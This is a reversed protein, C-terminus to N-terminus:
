MAALEQIEMDSLKYIGREVSIVVIEVDYNTQKPNVREYEECLVRRIASLQTAPAVVQAQNGLSLAGLRRILAARLDKAGVLTVPSADITQYAGSPDTQVMTVHPYRSVHGAVVLTSGFPRIGGGFASSQCTRCVSEVIQPTKMPQGYSRRFQLNEDTLKSFLALSDALVGSLAVVTNSDEMVILREMFKGQRIAVLCTLNKSLKAIVLPSSHDVAQSAYEIQLLRGDPTFQQVTNDYQYENYTGAQTQSIHLAVLLFWVLM